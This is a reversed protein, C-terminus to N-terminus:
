TPEKSRGVVLGMQRRQGANNAAGGGVRYERERELTDHYITSNDRVALGTMRRQQILLLASSCPVVAGVQHGQWYRPISLYLSGPPPLSPSIYINSLSYVFGLGGVSQSVSSIIQSVLVSGRGWQVESTCGDRLIWDRGERWVGRRREVM